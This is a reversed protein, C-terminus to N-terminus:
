RPRSNLRPLPNWFLPNSSMTGYINLTWYLLCALSTRETLNLSILVFLVSSSPSSLSGGVLIAWAHTYTHTRIPILGEATREMQGLQLLEISRKIKEKKLLFLFDWVSFGVKWWCPALGRGKSHSDDLAKVGPVIGGKQFLLVPLSPHSSMLPVFPSALTERGLGDMVEWGGRATTQGTERPNKMALYSATPLPSATHRRGWGVREFPETLWNLPTPETQPAATPPAPHPPWPWARPARPPWRSASTPCSSPTVPWSTCM